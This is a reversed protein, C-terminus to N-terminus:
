TVTEEIGLLLYRERPTLKALARTIETDDTTSLTRRAEYEIHDIQARLNPLGRLVSAAFEAEGADGAEASCLAYTMPDLAKFVCAFARTLPYHGEACDGEATEIQFWLYGGHSSGFERSMM